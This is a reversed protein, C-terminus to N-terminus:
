QASLVAAAQEERRCAERLYVALCTLLPFYQMYGLSLFFAAVCFGLAAAALCSALGGLKGLAADRRGYRFFVRMSGYLALVFLVFGPLGVESSIQTYSNHAAKWAGEELGLATMFQGPGVGTLPHTLTFRISQELFYQRSEASASAEGSSENSAGFLTALRNLSAEPASATLIGAMACAGLGISVKTSWKGRWTVLGLQAIVAVLAGRSGTAIIVQLAGLAAVIGILRMFYSMKLVFPIFFLPLMFVLHAAFDNPNAMIGFDLGFRGAVSRDFYHAVVVSAIGALFLTKLASELAGVRRSFAPLVLLLIFSSKLFHEYLEFSGGRWYSFPITVAMWAAFMWWYKFLPESFTFSFRGTLFSAICAPIAFVYLLYPNVGLIASVIEHVYAIKIFLLCLVLGFAFRGPQTRSDSRSAAARSREPTSAEVTQGLPPRVVTTPFSSVLLIRCGYRVRTFGRASGGGHNRAFAVM